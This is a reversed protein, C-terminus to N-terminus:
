LFAPHQLVADIAPRLAPDSNLCQELLDCLQTVELGESAAELDERTVVCSVKRGCEVRLRLFAVDDRVVDYDIRQSGADTTYFWPTQNTVMEYVVVGFAFVDSSRTPAVLLAPWHAFPSVLEPAAYAVNNGREARHQPALVNRHSVKEWIVALTKEISYFAGFDALKCSGDLGVLINSPKLNGHQRNDALSPFLKPGCGDETRQRLTEEGAEFADFKAMRTTSSGRSSSVEAGLSHLFALGRAIDHAYRKACGRPVRGFRKRLAEVSGAGFWEQFVVAGSEPTGSMGYVAAINEHVLETQRQVDKRLQHFAALSQARQLMHRHLVSLETSATGDADDELVGPATVADMALTFTYHKVAALSATAVRLGQYVTTKHTADADVVEDSICWENGHHDVVHSLLSATAGSPFHATLALVSVATSSHASFASAPVVVGNGAPVNVDDHHPSVGHEPSRQLFNPLENERRGQLLLATYTTSEGDGTISSVSFPKKVSEIHYHATHSGRSSVSKHDDPTSSRHTPSGASFLQPAGRLVLSHSTGSPMTAISARVGISASLSQRQLMQAASVGFLEWQAAQLRVYGSRAAATSQMMTDMDDVHTGGLSSASFQQVDSHEQLWEVAHLLRRAHPVLADCTVGELAARGRVWMGRLLAAFGEKFRRLDAVFQPDQLLARERLEFVIAGSIRHTSSGATPISVARVFDVPFVAHKQLTAAVRESVVITCGLAVQSLRLLDACFALRPGFMVHSLRQENGCTGFFYEGSDVVCHLWRKVFAPLSEVIELACNAAAIPHAAVNSSAEGGFYVVLMEPRQVDIVGGHFTVTPVLVDMFISLTAHLEEMSGDSPLSLSVVIVSCNRKSFFNPQFYFLKNRKNIKTVHVDSDNRLVENPLLPNVVDLQAGDCSQRQADGSLSQLNAAAPVDLLGQPVFRKLRNVRRQLHEYSVFIRQLETPLCVWQTFLTQRSSHSKLRAPRSSSSRPSSRLVGHASFSDPTLLSDSGTDEDSDSSQDESVDEVADTDDKTLPTMDTLKEVATSLQRLPASVLAFQVGCAVVAAALVAVGFVISDSRIEHLVGFYVSAPTVEVYAVYRRSTSTSLPVLVVSTVHAKTYSTFRPPCTRGASGVAAADSGGGCLGEYQSFANHMATLRVGDDEDVGSSLPAGVALVKRTAIDYLAQVSSLPQMAVERLVSEFLEDLRVEIVVAGVCRPATSNSTDWKVCAGFPLLTLDLTIIDTTNRLHLVYPTGWHGGAGAGPQLVSPSQMSPHPISEVFASFFPVLSNRTHTVTENQQWAPPLGWGDRKNFPARTMTGNAMLFCIHNLSLCGCSNWAFPAAVGSATEYYEYAAHTYTGLATRFTAFDSSFNNLQESERGNCTINGRVRSRAVGDIGATATQFFSQIIAKAQDQGDMLAEDVFKTTRQTLFTDCKLILACFASAVLVARLVDIWVLKM